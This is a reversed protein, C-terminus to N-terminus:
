PKFLRETRLELAMNPLPKGWGKVGAPSESPFATMGQTNGIGVRGKLAKRKTKPINYALFLPNYVHGQSQRVAFEKVSEERM